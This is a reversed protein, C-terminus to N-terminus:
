QIRVSMTTSSGDPQTAAITVPDTIPPTVVEQVVNFRIDNPCSVNPGSADTGHAVFTLSSSSKTTEGRVFRNCGGSQVTFSVTFSAGPAVTSPAEIRTVPLIISRKNPEFVSSCGAAFLLGVFSVVIQRM